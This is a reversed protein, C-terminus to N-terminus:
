FEQETLMTGQVPVAGWQHQYGVVTDFMRRAVDLPPMNLSMKVGTVTGNQLVSTVLKPQSPPSELFSAVRAVFAKRSGRHAFGAGRMGMDDAFKEYLEAHAVWEPWPRDVSNTCAGESLCQAWWQQIADGSRDIQDILAETVVGKRLRAMDVPWAQLVALLAASFRPNGMEQWLAGFYAQSMVRDMRFVSVRREGIGAPVVWDENSAIAVRLCNRENIIDVGKREIAITDQTVMRKYVGANQRDGGWMAEDAFILIKGSQHGNFRGVLQERSSVSLFHHGLLKGVAEITLSKGSGQKGQLALSKGSPRGPTQIIDAFFDMLWDFHATNGDCVVTQLHDTFRPITAMAQGLDPMPEVAFGRWLNYEDAAAPEGGPPAFVVKRFTRRGPSELWVNGASVRRPRGNPGPVTVFVNLYRERFSAFTQFMVPGTSEETGVLMNQTGPVVFHTENMRDITDNGAHGFWSYLRGLLAPGDPWSKEFHPGGTTPQNDAYAAFTDSVARARDQGEPDGAMTTVLRVLQAAYLDPVGVRALVGGLHSFAEHRGGPEPYHRSLLVGCAVLRVLGHLDDWTTLKPLIDNEWALPEGSTHISPPIMTQHDRGRLEIIVSGDLDSFSTRSGPASGETCLFWHHSSPRGPRGHIRTVPLIASAAVVADASDCDVDLLTGIRSPVGTKVGVNDDPHFDDLMFEREVWGQTRPAKEGPRLPVVPWGAAILEQLTV